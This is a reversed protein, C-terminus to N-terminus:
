EETTVDVHIFYVKQIGKELCFGETLRSSHKSCRTPNHTLSDVLVLKIKKVYEYIICNKKGM